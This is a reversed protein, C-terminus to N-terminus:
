KFYTLEYTSLFLNAYQDVNRKEASDVKSVKLEGVREIKEVKKRLADTFLKSLNEIREIGEKIDAVRLEGASEM